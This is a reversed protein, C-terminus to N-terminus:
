WSALANLPVVPSSPNADSIPTLLVALRTATVNPLHIALRRVRNNEAQGAPNPSSPLPKAEMVTFGGESPALLQAVLKGAAKKMTLTATKGDASVIVEAPTHMFWWLDAPREALIEDQVLVQHREILAIGRQVLKAHTAYAPTLNTIAFARQPKSEFRVIPAVARSDQDATKGPNLVLTNHGEARLRYYDWRAKGFYGPLNYNDAGIDTAWRVGLADLAFTGLDLHSHNAKNDGAKFGVFTARPDNWAGRMTAVETHRFYKDLPLAAPSMALLKANHWLIDLPTPRANALQYAAFEPRRFKNALWFLVPARIHGEHCDAFAFSLGTAGGMYIPFLGTESFGPAASLNFDTGLASELMAIMAVNYMTAYGWYGPGEPWAGDPAYDAMALPVSKLASALIETSPSPVEDGIALAGATLGGNCVQNWNHHCTHWGSKRQYVTLGPKFGKEVIATRLTARQDPTWVEYFWDYGVAFAHTMEATDLFHSPNWDKFNAAAELERWARDAYKRDGEIRYIWGLLMVRDLVRRSTALLRKGDPIEYRSPPATLLKAADRRLADQWKALQPNAAIRQKVEAFQPATAYLRPHERKLTALPNADAALLLIAALALHM